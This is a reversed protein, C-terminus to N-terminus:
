GGDLTTYSAQAARLDAISVEGGALARQAWLHLAAHYRQRCDPSCFKKEHAGIKRPAFPKACWTCNPATTM